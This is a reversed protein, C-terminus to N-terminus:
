AADGSQPIREFLDGVALGLVEALVPLSRPGPVILGREYRSLNSDEVNRGLAKCKDAVDRQTLGLELRAMLLADGRFRHTSVSM